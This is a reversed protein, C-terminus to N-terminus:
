LCNSKELKLVEWAAQKLDDIDYDDGAGTRTGGIGLECAVSNNEDIWFLAGTPTHRARDGDIAFQDHAIRMHM